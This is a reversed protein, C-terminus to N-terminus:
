KIEYQVSVIGGRKYSGVIINQQGSNRLDTSISCLEDFTDIDTSVAYVYGKLNQMDMLNVNNDLIVLAKSDIHEDRIDSLNRITKTNLKRLM